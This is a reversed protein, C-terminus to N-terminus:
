DGCYDAFATLFGERFSRTLPVAVIKGDPWSVFVDSKAVKSVYMMNVIFSNGSRAFKTSLEAAVDKMAGRLKVVSGDRKYFQLYHRIVEVYVIESEKIKAVGDVTKLLLEKDMTRTVIDMFKHMKLYFEQYVLPKVIYDMADVKYGEIAFHTSKTLFVIGVKKNSARIRRAIDMGTLEGGLLIDLFLLDYKQLPIQLFEDASAFVDLSYGYPSDAFFRGVMEKTASAELADDELMAIHVIM